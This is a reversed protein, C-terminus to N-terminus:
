NNVGKLLAHLLNNKLHTYSENGEIFDDTSELSQNKSKSKWDQFYININPRPIYLEAICPWHSLSHSM